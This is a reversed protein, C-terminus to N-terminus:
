FTGKNLILVRREGESIEEKVRTWDHIADLLVDHKYRYGEGRKTGPDNTIFRRGDYGTIVLMHYWPGEGSFYPNGLMRGAAPVIVPNGQAIQEQIGRLSPDEIIQSTYGYFFEAIDALEQLTVDESYGKKTEWEILDLLQENARQSTLESESLFSHVMLLAAEECAEQYPADWNAHPAQVTFPVSLSAKRPLGSGENTVDATLSCATLSLSLSLSLLKTM